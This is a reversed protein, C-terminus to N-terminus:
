KGTFNVQLNVNKIQSDENTIIVEELSLGVINELAWPMDKFKLVVTIAKYTGPSAPILYETSDIYAPLMSSFSFDLLTEPPFVTTAIVMFGEVQEPWEGSFTIKGSISSPSAIKAKSFDADINKNSIITTKDPINILGPSFPNGPEFYIGFISQIGWAAEKARWVLGLYYDGPELYFTYNTSDENLPLIDGIILDNIDAPPFKITAVVRVEATNPPWDGIYKITGSIGSRVPELGHDKQCSIILLGLLIINIFNKIKSKLM